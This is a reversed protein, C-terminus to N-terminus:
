SDNIRVHLRDAHHVIVQDVTESVSFNPLEITVPLAPLPKSFLPFVLCLFVLRLFVLRLFVLSHRPGTYLFTSGLRSRAVASKSQRKVIHLPGRGFNSIFCECFRDTGDWSSLDCAVALHSGGCSVGAM